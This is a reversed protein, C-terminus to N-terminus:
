ISEPKNPPIQFKWEIAQSKNRRPSNTPLSLLDAAWKTFKLLVKFQMKERALHVFQSPIAGVQIYFREYPVNPNPIWFYVNFFTNKAQSYLLYTQTEIGASRFAEILESTKLPYSFGKPIKERKITLFNPISNM